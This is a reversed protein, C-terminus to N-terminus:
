NKEKWAAFDELFKRLLDKRLVFPAGFPNVVVGKVDEWEYGFRLVDMILVPMIVNATQGKHLEKETLFLPIWEDGNGDSVLDMRLRIEDKMEVVDGVKAQEPDISAFLVNNVDIFPMPVTAEETIRKAMVNLFTIFAETRKDEDTEGQFIAFAADLPANEIYEERIENIDGANAGNM